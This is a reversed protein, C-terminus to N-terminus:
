NDPIMIQYLKSLHHYKVVILLSKLIL